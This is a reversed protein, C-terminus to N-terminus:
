HANAPAEAAANDVALTDNAPLAQNELVPDAFTDNGLASGEDANIVSTENSVVTENQAGGGCASLAFAFPALAALALSKKM